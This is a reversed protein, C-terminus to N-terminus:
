AIAPRTSDANPEFFKKMLDTPWDTARNAAKDVHAVTMVARSLSTGMFDVMECEVFADPGRFERVFSTINIEQDGWVPRLFDIEIRRVWTMFPLTALTKLDWGAYVRLGEMRHDVYYTAYQGTNVHNYPDLESFKVRHKTTYVIPKGSM